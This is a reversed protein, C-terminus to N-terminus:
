KGGSEVGGGWDEARTICLVILGMCNHHHQLIITIYRVTMKWDQMMYYMMTNGGDVVSM